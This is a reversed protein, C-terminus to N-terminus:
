ARDIRAAFCGRRAFHAHIYRVDSNEFFRAILSETQTGETVDADVMMGRDDFARLSLLRNSLMDPVEDTHDYAVAAAENVYIAHSSRYPSDAPQHVYNLLLLSEGIEADRLAIRDPFSNPSEAIIRTVGNRALEAAPLGVLHSFLAAPLGQIRFAHRMFDDYPLPARWDIRKKSECENFTLARKRVRM